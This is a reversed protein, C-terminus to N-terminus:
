PSLESHATVMWAGPLTGCRIVWLCHLSVFKQSYKGGSMAGLPLYWRSKRACQTIQKKVLALLGYFLKTKHPTWISEPPVSISPTFSSLFDLNSLLSFQIRSFHFASRQLVTNEACVRHNPIWVANIPSANLFCSLSRASPKRLNNQLNISLKLFQVTM